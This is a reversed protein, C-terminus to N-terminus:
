YSSSQIASFGVGPMSCRTLPQCVDFMPCQHANFSFWHAVNSTLRHHIAIKITWWIALSFLHCLFSTLPWHSVFMPCRNNTHWLIILLLCRLNPSSPCCTQDNEKLLLIHYDLLHIYFILPLFIGSQDISPTTHHHIHFDSTSIHQNTWKIIRKISSSVLRSPSCTNFMSQSCTNSIFTLLCWINVTM